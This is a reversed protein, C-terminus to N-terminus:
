WFSYKLISLVNDSSLNNSFRIYAHDNIIKMYITYIITLMTTFLYTHIIKIIVRLNKEM